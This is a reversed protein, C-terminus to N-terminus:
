SGGTTDVRLVPGGLDPVGYEGNTVRRRLDTLAELGRHGAHRAGTNHRETYRRELTELGASVDVVIARAQAALDRIATQGRFFAGELIFPTGAQILERAVAFQTDFAAEGLEPAAGLHDMLREKILDKSIVPLRLERGLRNALQSKGSAPPGCVIVFATV